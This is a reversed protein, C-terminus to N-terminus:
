QMMAIMMSNNESITETDVSFEPTPTKSANGGEFFGNAKVREKELWQITPAYRPSENM